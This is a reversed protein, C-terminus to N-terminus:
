SLTQLIKTCRTIVKHYKDPSINEGQMASSIIDAISYSKCQALLKIIDHKEQNITFIKFNKPTISTAM